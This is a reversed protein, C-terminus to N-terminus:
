RRAGIVQHYVAETAELMKEATPVDPLRVATAERRVHDLAAALKEASGPRFRMDEDIRETIGGLDSGVVPVGAAQAELVVYPFNEPCVSTIALVDLSRLFTPMAERTVQGLFDVNLGAAAQQLKRWSVSQGASGALR